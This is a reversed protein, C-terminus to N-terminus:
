GEGWLLPFLKRRQRSSRVGMSNVGARRMPSEDLWFGVADNRFQIRNERERHAHAPTLPIPVGSPVARNSSNLSTPLSLSNIGSADEGYHPM